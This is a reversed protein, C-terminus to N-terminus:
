KYFVNHNTRKPNLPSEEGYGFIIALHVQESLPIGLKSYHPTKEVFKGFGIPCSDIGLSKAALMMNQSCMGIDLSAWEDYKPATIFIVVPAGHFIPDKDKFFDIGHSLQSIGSVITNILNKIGMQPISKLGAKLIEKSFLNIDEKNLMVYFRWPQKNMASPAMKGAALIQEILDKTVEKTSYKRVSRREFIKKLVDSICIKDTQKIEVLESINNNM